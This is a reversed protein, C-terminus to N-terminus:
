RRGVLGFGTPGNDGVLILREIGDGRQVWARGTFPAQSPHESDRLEFGLFHNSEALPVLDGTLRCPGPEAGGLFRLCVSGEATLELRAHHDIIQGGMRVEWAGGVRQTSVPSVFEQPSPTLSLQFSRGNQTRLRFAGGGASFTGELETPVLGNPHGYTWNSGYRSFQLASDNSYTARTVWGVHGVFSPGPVSDETGGLATLVRLEGREDVSAFAAAPTSAPFQLEVGSLLAPTSAQDPLECDLGSIRTLRRIPTSGSGMGAWNSRWRLLAHECSILEISVTGWTGRRLDRPQFSGFRMGRNVYATAEIRRGEIRGDLYLHLPNGEMDYVFWFALARQEDLIQISLGHGSQEPNYWAGSIGPPLQAFAPTFLLLTLLPLRSFFTKM